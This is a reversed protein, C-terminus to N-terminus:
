GYGVMQGYHITCLSGGYEQHASCFRCLRVREWFEVEDELDEESLNGEAFRQKAEEISRDVRNM